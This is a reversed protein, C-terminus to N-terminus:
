NSDPASAWDGVQPPRIKVEPEIGDATGAEITYGMLLAERAFAKADSLSSFRRISWGCGEDSGRLPLPSVSVFWTTM